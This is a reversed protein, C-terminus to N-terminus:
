DRERIKTELHSTQGSKLLKTPRVAGPEKKAPMRITAVQPTQHRTESFAPRTGEQGALHKSGISEMQIHDLNGVLSKSRIPRKPIHDSMRVLLESRISRKPINDPMRVVPETRVSGKLVCDSMRVLPETQLIKEDSWLMM